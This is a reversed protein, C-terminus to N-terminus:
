DRDALSAIQRVVGLVAIAIPLLATPPVPKHQPGAEREQELREEEARVYLLAAGVGVLTGLVGGIVMTRNKWSEDSM